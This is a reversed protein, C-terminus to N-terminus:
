CKEADTHSLSIERSIVELCLIHKQARDDRVECYRWSQALKLWSGLVSQYSSLTMPRIQSNWRNENSCLSM